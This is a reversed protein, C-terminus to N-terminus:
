KLRSWIISSPVEMVRGLGPPRIVFQEVPIPVMDDMEEQPVDYVRTCSSMFYKHHCRRPYSISGAGWAKAMSQRNHPRLYHINGGEFQKKQYDVRRIRVMPFTDWFPLDPTQASYNFFIIDGVNFAGTYDQLGFQLQERYWSKSKPYGNALDKVDQFISM